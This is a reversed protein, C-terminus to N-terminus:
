VAPDFVTERSDQRLLPDARDREHRERLAQERAAVEFVARRGTRLLTVRDGTRLEGVTRECPQPGEVDDGAVTTLRERLHRQLPHQAVADDGGREDAGRPGLLE